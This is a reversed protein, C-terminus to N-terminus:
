RHTQKDPPPNHFVTLLFRNVFSPFIFDSPFLICESSVKVQTMEKRESRNHVLLFVAGQRYKRNKRKLSM